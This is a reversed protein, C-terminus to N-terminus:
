FTNWTAPRRSLLGATITVVGLLFLALALAWALRTHL